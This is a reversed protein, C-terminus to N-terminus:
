ETPPSLPYSVLMFVEYPEPEARLGQEDEAIWDYVKKAEDYTPILGYQNPHIGYLNHMERELGSCLWSHSLGYYSSVVEYGIREGGSALPQRRAVQRELGYAKDPVTESWDSLNNKHIGLGLLYLNTTDPLFRSAFERSFDVTLFISFVDIKSRYGENMWAKYDDWQAESVGFNLAAQKDGPQWGWYMVVKPSICDSLSIVKPPLLSHEKWHSWGPNAAKLLVYGGCIYEDFATM